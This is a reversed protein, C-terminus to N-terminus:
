QKSVPPTWGNREALVQWEPKKNVIFQACYTKLEIIVKETNNILSIPITKNKTRPHALFQQIVTILHNILKKLQQDETKNLIVGLSKIHQVQTQLKNLSDITQQYMCTEM